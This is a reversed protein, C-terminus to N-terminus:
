DLRYDRAEHRCTKYFKWYNVATEDFHYNDIARMATQLTFRRCPAAESRAAGGSGAEM